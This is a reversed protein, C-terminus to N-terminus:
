AGALRARGFIRAAEPVPPIDITEGRGMVRLLEAVPELQAMITEPQTSPRRATVRAAGLPGRAWEAVLSLATQYELAALTAPDFSTSFRFPTSAGQQAQVGDSDTQIQTEVVHSDYQGAPRECPPM